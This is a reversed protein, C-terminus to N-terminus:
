HIAMRRTTNQQGFILPKYGHPRDNTMAQQRKTTRSPLLPLIPSDKAEDKASTSLLAFNGLKVSFVLNKRDSTSPADDM